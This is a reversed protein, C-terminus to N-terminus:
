AAKEGEEEEEKDGAEEKEALATETPADESAKADSASSPKWVPTAASEMKGALFGAKPSGSDTRSADIASSSASRPAEPRASGSEEVSPKYDPNVASLITDSFRRGARSIGRGILAAAATGDEILADSYPKITDGMKKFSQTVPEAYEFADKEMNRFREHDAIPKVAHETFVNLPTNLASGLKLWKRKMDNDENDGINGPGVNGREDMERYESSSSSMRSAEATTEAEM